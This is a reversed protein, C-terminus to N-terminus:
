EHTSGAQAAELQVLQEALIGGLLERNLQLLDCLRSLLVGAEVDPHDGLPGVCQEALAHHLRTVLKADLDVVQPGGRLPGDGTSQPRRATRNERGKLREEQRVVPVLDLREPLQDM